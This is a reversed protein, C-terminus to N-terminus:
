RSLERGDITTYTLELAKGEPGEVAKTIRHGDRDWAEGAIVATSLTVGAKKIEVYVSTRADLVLGTLACFMKDTVAKRLIEWDVIEEPRLMRM